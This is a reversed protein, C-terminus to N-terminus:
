LASAYARIVCHTPLAHGIAHLALVNRCAHASSAYLQLSPQVSASPQAPSPLDHGQFCALTPGRHRVLTRAVSWCCDLFRPVLFRPGPLSQEIAATAQRLSVLLQAISRDPLGHFIRRLWRSPKSLFTRPALSEFAMGQGERVGM